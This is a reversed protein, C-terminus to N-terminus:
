NEDKDEMVSIKMWDCFDPNIYIYVGGFYVSLIDLLCVHVFHFGFVSVFSSFRTTMHDLM